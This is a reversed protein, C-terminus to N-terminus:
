RTIFRVLTVLIAVLCAAGLVGVIIVHVLKISAQDQEGYAKKRIGLFSWFVASIVKLFSAPRPAPANPDPLPASPSPSSSISARDDQGAPVRAGAQFYALRGWNQQYLTGEGPAGRPITMRKSFSVVFNWCAKASAWLMANPLSLPKM